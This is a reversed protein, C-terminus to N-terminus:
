KYQKNKDVILRNKESKKNKKLKNKCAKLSERVERTKPRINKKQKIVKKFIESTKQSKAIRVVRV